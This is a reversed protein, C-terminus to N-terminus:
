YPLDVKGAPVQDEDIPQLDSAPYINVTGPAPMPVEKGYDAVGQGLNYGAVIVGFAWTFTKVIAETTDGDLGLVASCIYTLIMILLPLMAAAGTTVTAKKSGMVKM